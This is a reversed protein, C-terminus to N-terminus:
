NGVPVWGGDVKKLLGHGDIFKLQPLTPQPLFTIKEKDAGQALASKILEDKTASYQSYSQQVLQPVLSAMSKITQDTLKGKQLLENHISALQGAPGGPDAVITGDEKRVVGQPDLVKAMGYIAAAANLPDRTQIATMVQNGRTAIENIKQAQTGTTLKDSISLEVDALQKRNLAGGGPGFEVDRKAQEQARTMDANFKIPDSVQVWDRNNPDFVMGEKEKMGVVSDFLKQEQKLPLLAQEKAVADQVDAKRTLEQATLLNALSQFKPERAAMTARTTPDAALFNNLVPAFAANEKDAQNKAVGSLLAALLSSGVSIGINSGVSAYPNTLGPSLSSLTSAAMGFPSESPKVKTAALATLLDDGFAM